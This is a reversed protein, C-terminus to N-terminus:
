GKLRNAGAKIEIGPSAIFTPSLITVSGPAVSNLGTEVQSMWTAMAEGANIQCPDTRRAINLVGNNFRVDKGAVADILVEGDEKIVVSSGTKHTIDIQGPTSSGSGHLYILNGAVDCFLGRDGRKTEKPRYRPDALPFGWGTAASRLMMAPCNVPPVAVDGWGELRAAPMVAEPDDPAQQVNLRMTDSPNEGEATRTLIGNMMVNGWVDNWRKRYENFAETPSARFVPRANNM